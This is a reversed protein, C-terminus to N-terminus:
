RAIRTRTREFPFFARSGSGVAQTLQLFCINEAAMFFHPTHESQTVANDFWVDGLPKFGDLSAFGFLECQHVQM